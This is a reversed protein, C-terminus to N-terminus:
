FQSTAGPDGKGSDTTSRVKDGLSHNMSEHKEPVEKGITAM